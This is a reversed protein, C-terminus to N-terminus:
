RHARKEGCARCFIWEANVFVDHVGTDLARCTTGLRDSGAERWPQEWFAVAEEAVDVIRAAPKGTDPPIVRTPEVSRTRALEREVERMRAELTELRERLEFVETRSM